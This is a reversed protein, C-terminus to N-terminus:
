AMGATVVSSGRSWVRGQVAETHPSRAGKELEKERRAWLEGLAGFIYKPTVSGGKDTNGLTTM